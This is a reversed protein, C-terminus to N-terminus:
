AARTRRTAVKERELQFVLRRIPDLSTRFIRQDPWARFMFGLKSATGDVIPRAQRLEVLAFLESQVDPLRTRAFFQMGIRFRSYQATDVCVGLGGESIDVLRGCITTGGLPSFRPGGPEGDTERLEVPVPDDSVLAARFNARRQGAMVQTPRALLIGTVVVDKNLRARCACSLVTTKFRYMSQDLFLFADCQMDELFRVERGVGRPAAVTITDGDCGIMRTHGVAIEGSDAVYHLELRHDRQVADAIVQPASPILSSSSM